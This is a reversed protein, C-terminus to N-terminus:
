VMNRILFFSDSDNYTQTAKRESLWATLCYGHMLSFECSGPFYIHYLNANLVSPCNYIGQKFM